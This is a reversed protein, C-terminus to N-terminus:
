LSQANPDGEEDGQTFARGSCNLGVLNTGVVPCPLHCVSLLATLENPTYAANVSTVLGPRMEKPKCGLWMFWRLLPNM